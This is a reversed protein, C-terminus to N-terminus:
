LEGLYEITVVKLVVCLKLNSDQYKQTQIKRTYKSTEGLM